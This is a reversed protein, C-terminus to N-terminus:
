TPMTTKRADGSPVFRDHERRDRFGRAHPNGEHIPTGPDACDCAVEYDHLLRLWHDELRRKRVPDTEQACVMWGTDLRATLVAVDHEHPDPQATM